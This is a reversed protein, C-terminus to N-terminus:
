EGTEIPYGAEKWAPAGGTFFYVKQFGWNVAKAVGRAPTDCAPDKCHLVIEEAKSAVAMLSEEMLRTQFADASRNYILHIASSIHEEKWADPHSVDIFVVGRDYFTKATDLDIQTAGEVEFWTNGADLVEHVTVLYQWTLAPIDSLGARVREQARTGGVRTFDIEGQFPSFASPSKRELSLDGMGLKARLDNAAEIADDAEAIRGLHGYSSALYIWPLENDPNRKVAREFTTAAARLTSSRQAAMASAM